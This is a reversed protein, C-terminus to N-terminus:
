WPVSGGGAGEKQTTREGVEGDTTAGWKSGSRGLSLFPDAGETYIRVGTSILWSKM